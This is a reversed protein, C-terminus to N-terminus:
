EDEDQERNTMAALEELGPPANGALVKRNLIKSCESAVQECASQPFGSLPLFSTKGVYGCQVFEGTDENKLMVIHQNLSKNIVGWATAEPVVHEILKLEM